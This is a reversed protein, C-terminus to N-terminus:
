AALQDARRDEVEDRKVASHGLTMQDRDHESLIDQLAAPLDTGCWESIPDDREQLSGLLLIVVIDSGIECGERQSSSTQALRRGESDLRGIPRHKAVIQWRAGHAGGSDGRSIAGLPRRDGDSTAFGPIRPARYSIQM